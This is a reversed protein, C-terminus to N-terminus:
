ATLIRNSGPIYSDGGVYKCVNGCRDPCCRQGQRCEDDSLCHSPLKVCLGVNNVVPCSGLPLQAIITPCCIGTRDGPVKQCFFGGACQNTVFPVCRGNPTGGNRCRDPLVPMDLPCCSGSGDVSESRCFYGSPCQIIGFPNCPGAPNGGSPCTVKAGDPCCLGSGDFPSYCFYGSPCTSPFTRPNCDRSVPTGRPCIRTDENPPIGFIDIVQLSLIVLVFSITRGYM